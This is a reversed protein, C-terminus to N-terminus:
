VPQGLAADPKDAPEEYLPVARELRDHPGHEESNNPFPRDDMTPQHDTGEPTVAPRSRFLDSGGMRPSASPSRVPKASVGDPDVTPADYVSHVGPENPLASDTASVTPSSVPGMPAAPDPLSKVMAAVALLTAAAVAQGVRSRFFEVAASGAGVEAHLAERAVVDRELVPSPVPTRTPHM